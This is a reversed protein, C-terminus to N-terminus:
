ISEPGAKGQRLINKYLRENVSEFLEKTVIAKHLGLLEAVEAVDSPASESRKPNAVMGMYKRNKLIGSVAEPSFHNLVRLERRLRSASGNTRFGARNLERAIAALSYIGSDYLEFMGKVAPGKEDDVHWYPHDADEPCDDDCIEYGYPAKGGWVEGQDRKYKASRSVDTSIVVSYEEASLALKTFKIRGEPTSFDIDERVFIVKIGLEHLERTVRLAQETNRALRNVRHVILVQFKGAKADVLLRNFSPRKFAKMAYASRGDDIYFGRFDLHTERRARACIDWTQIDISNGDGSDKNSLRGYGVAVLKGPDAPRIFDVEQWQVAQTEYGQRRRRRRAM